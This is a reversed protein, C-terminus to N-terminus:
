FRKERMKFLKLLPKVFDEDTQISVWDTGASNFTSNLNETHKLWWQRYAKKVPNFSTDIWIEEHTEPHLMKVLGLDLLQSEAKDYVHIAAIDHKKSAIQLSKKYKNDLFDSIIFTTTRKKIINTLYRLAESINTGTGEPQFNIMDHIIRLIHKSGKAPSIFKEIRNSFFIAGVKDNNNIASFALTAALEIILDKKFEQRTGFLNSSSVDILLMVTLEREEEFIKIYPHGFRATVNWDIARVDDGFQYERVESFVMGKGKFASHYHGSFIQNSLGRSKIEIKRVKKLIDTTEV